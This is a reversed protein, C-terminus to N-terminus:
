NADLPQAPLLPTLDLVGAPRSIRFMRGYDSFDYTAQTADHRELRLPYPDGTGSVYLLSGNAGTVILAIRGGLRTPRVRGARLAPDAVTSEAFGALTLQDPGSLRSTMTTPLKLWRGQVLALSAPDVLGVGMLDLLAGATEWAFTEAGVRVLRVDGHALVLLSDCAGQRFRIDVHAHRGGEDTTGIVRVGPAHALAAVAADVVVSAPQGALGNSPVPAPKGGTLLLGTVVGGVIVVVAVLAVRPSPRLTRRIGTDTAAGGDHRSRLGRLLAM